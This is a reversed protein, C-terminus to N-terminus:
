YTKYRTNAIVKIIIKKVKDSLYFSLATLIVANIIGQLISKAIISYILFLIFLVIASSYPVVAGAWKNLVEKLIGALVTLGLAVLLFPLTIVIM